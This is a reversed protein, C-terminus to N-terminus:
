HVHSWIRRKLIFLLVILFLLYILVRVGTRHREALHPQGVWALFITVDRAEQEVSAATGDEYHVDGGHLPPKMAIVRGAAFRNYFLGPPVPVGAPPASYGTLLAYIRDPGGPYILAQRALDPVMVGEKVGVPRVPTPFADDPLGHRYKPAGSLDRGARIEYGAALAQVAEPELGMGALDSFHVHKLGHCSACVQEYVLYGRQVAALDFNGLAGEFSWHQPPAHDHDPPTAGAPAGFTLGALLIALM